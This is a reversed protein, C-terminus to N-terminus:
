PTAAHVHRSPTSPEHTSHQLESLLLEFPFCALLCNLQPAAVLGEGCPVCSQVCPANRAVSLSRYFRALRRRGRVGVARTPKTKLLCVHVFLNPRNGVYRIIQLHRWPLYPFQRPSPSLLAAFARQRTELNM